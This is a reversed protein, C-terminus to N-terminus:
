ALSPSHVQSPLMKRPEQTNNSVSRPVLKINGVQMKKPITSSSGGQAGQASSKDSDILSISVLTACPTLPPLQTIQQIIALADAQAADREAISPQGMEETGQSPVQGSCKTPCAASKVSNTLSPSIAKLNTNSGTLALLIKFQWIKGNISTYM